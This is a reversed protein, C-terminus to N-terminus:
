RSVLAIRNALGEFRLDLMIQGPFDGIETKVFIESSRRAFWAYSAMIASRPHLSGTKSM